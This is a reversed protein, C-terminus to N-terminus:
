DSFGHLLCVDPVLIGKDTDKYAGPFSVLENPSPAGKQNGGVSLQACSPYFEAGGQTTAIHLGIIEHRVLYNGAALTRPLSVTAPANNKESSSILV